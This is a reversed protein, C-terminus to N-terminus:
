VSSTKLSGYYDGWVQEAIPMEIEAGESLGNFLRDAERRSDPHVSV